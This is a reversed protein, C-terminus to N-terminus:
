FLLINTSRSSEVFFLVGYHINNEYFSLKEPMEQHLIMLSMERLIEGLGLILSMMFLLKKCMMMLQIKLNLSHQLNENETADDNADVQESLNDNVQQQGQEEIDLADVPNDDPV